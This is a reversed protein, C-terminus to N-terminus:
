IVVIMLLTTALLLSSAIPLNRTLVLSFANLRRISGMSQKKSDSNLEMFYGFAGSNSVRLKGKKFGQLALIPCIYTSIQKTTQFHHLTRRYYSNM